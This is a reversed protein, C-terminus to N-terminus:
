AMARESGLFLGQGQPEPMLYLFHQPLGTLGSSLTAAQLSSFRVGRSAPRGFQAEYYLAGGDRGGRASASQFPFSATVITLHLRSASTDTGAELRWCFDPSKKQSRVPIFSLIFQYFCLM